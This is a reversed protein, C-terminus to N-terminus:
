GEVIRREIGSHTRKAERVLLRMVRGLASIAEETPNIPADAADDAYISAIDNSLGFSEVCAAVAQLEDLRAWLLYHESDAEADEGSAQSGNDAMAGPPDLPVGDDLRHRMSAFLAEVGASGGPAEGGNDNRIVASDASAAFGAQATTAAGPCATNNDNSM